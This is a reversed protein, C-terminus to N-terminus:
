HCLFLIVFLLPKVYLSIHYVDSIIHTAVLSLVNALLQKVQCNYEATISGAGTMCSNPSTMSNTPLIRILDLSIGLEKAAM